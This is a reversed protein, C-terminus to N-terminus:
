EEGTYLSLLEEWHEFREGNDDQLRLTYLIGNDFRCESSVVVFITDAPFDWHNCGRSDCVATVLTGEEFARAEMLKETLSSYTWGCLSILVDDMIARQEPSADNYRRVLNPRGDDSMYEENFINMFEDEPANLERQHKDEVEINLM